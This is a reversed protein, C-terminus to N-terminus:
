RWLSDSLTSGLSSVQQQKTVSAGMPMQQTMGMMSNNNCGNMQGPQQMGAHVGGGMHGGMTGMRMQQQQMMMQQQQQHYIGSGTSMNMNMNMNGGQMQPIGMGMGGQQMHAQTPQNYLSMIDNKAAAVAAAAGNDAAHFNGFSISPDQQQQQRTGRLLEGVGDGNNNVSVGTGSPAFLDLIEQETNPQSREKTTPAAGGGLGLGLLDSSLSKVSSEDSKKSAKPSAPTAFLSETLSMSEKKRQEIQLGSSKAKPQSVVPADVPAEANPPPGAACYKKEVYKRRIFAQAQPGNVKQYNAPLNAEWYANGRANGINQMTLIEKPNWTDLNTSKVKTIHVGLNRHHGSCDICIFVGLSHSAWRPSRQPCDACVKNPDQRLLEQLIKNHRENQKQKKERETRTSM